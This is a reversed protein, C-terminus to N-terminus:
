RCRKRKYSMVNVKMFSEQITANKTKQLDRNSIVSVLWLPTAFAVLSFDFSLRALQGFEKKMEFKVEFNILSQVETPNIETLNGPRTWSMLIYNLLAARKM